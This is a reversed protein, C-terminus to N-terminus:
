LTKENKRRGKKFFDTRRRSSHSGSCQAHRSGSADAASAEGGEERVETEAGRESPLFPALSAFGSRM